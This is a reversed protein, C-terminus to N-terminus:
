QEQAKVPVAFCFLFQNCAIQIVPMANGFGSYGVCFIYAKLGDNQGHLFAFVMSDTDLFDTDVTM